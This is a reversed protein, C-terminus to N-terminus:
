RATLPDRRVVAHTNGGQALDTNFVSALEWAARWLPPSAPLAMLKAPLEM